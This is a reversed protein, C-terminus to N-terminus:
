GKTLNSLHANMARMQGLINQLLVRQSSDETQAKPPAGGAEGGDGRRSRVRGPVVADNARNIISTRANSWPNNARIGALASAQGAATAARGATGTTKAETIARKTAVDPADGSGFAGPVLVNQGKNKEGQLWASFDALGRANEADSAAKKEKELDKGWAKLDAKFFGEKVQDGAKGLAKGFLDLGKAAEEPLSNLHGEARGMAKDAAIGAGVAGGKLYGMGPLNSMADYLISALKLGAANFVEFLARGFPAVSALLAQGIGVAVTGMAALVPEIYDWVTSFANAVADMMAKALGGGAGAGKVFETMSNVAAAISDGVDAMVPKLQEALGIAGALIPKIADNLPQGLANFVENVADKLSSWLGLTSKAQQAMLDGWRGTPGALALLATRFQEFSVQGKSTMDMLEAKTVGLSKALQDKIAGAGREGFQMLEEAMVRGKDSIQAYITALGGIDTGVGAAVNGLATLETQLDKTAVGAALLKRAAGIVEDSEFPTVNAFKFLGALVADAEKADGVINNFAIRVQERDAAIKVGIGLGAGAAGLGALSGLAAVKAGLAGLSALGKGIEAIMKSADASIEYQLKGDM